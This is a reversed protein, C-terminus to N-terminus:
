PDSHRPGPPRESARHPTRAHEEVVGFRHRSEESSVPRCHRERHLEHIDECHPDHGLLWGLAQQRDPFYECPYPARAYAAALVRDMPSDGFMAAALINRASSMVRRAEASIGLLGAMDVVVVYRLGHAVDFSGQLMRQAAERDLHLPHRMSVSVARPEMLEIRYDDAFSSVGTLPSSEEPM